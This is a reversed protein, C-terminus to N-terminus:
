GAGIVSAVLGAVFWDAIVLLILILLAGPLPTETARRVIGASAFFQWFGLASFGLLLLTQVGTLTPPHQPHALMQKMLTPLDIRVVLLDAVIGFLLYVAALATMTQVFREAKGRTRLVLYLVGVVGIGGASGAVAVRPTAGNHLNFWAMLAGCAVLLVVLLPPSYPMDDPGRRFLCLDRLTALFALM